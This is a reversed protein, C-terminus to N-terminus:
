ALNATYSLAMPAIPETEAVKASLRARGGGGALRAEIM